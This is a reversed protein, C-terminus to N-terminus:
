HLKAKIEALIRRAEKASTGDGQGGYYKPTRLSELERFLTALDPLNRDDLFKPLVKHSDQHQRTRRDSVLAIYHIAAAYCAEIVMEFDADDALKRLTAELREAKRRHGDANM